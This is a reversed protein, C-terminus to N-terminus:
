WVFVANKVGTLKECDVCPFITRGQLDVKGYVDYETWNMQMGRVPKIYYEFSEVQVPLNEADLIIHAHKDLCVFKSKDYDIQMEKGEHMYLLKGGNIHAIEMDDHTLLTTTGGQKIQKLHSHEEVEEQCFAKLASMSLIALFITFFRTLTM